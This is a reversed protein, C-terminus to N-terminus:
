IFKCFGSMITEELISKADLEMNWMM